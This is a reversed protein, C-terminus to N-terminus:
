YKTSIRRPVCGETGKDHFSGGKVPLFEWDYSSRHLTLKLVGWTSGNWVESANNRLGIDYLRAGGTGVVFSRIGHYFDVKGNADLPAFREYDHDHGTIVISADFKYLTDWAATMDLYDSHPGSSFRPPHWFALICQAKNRSLDKKLWKIQPSDPGADISSNLAIIHWSGVQKSYYGKDRDGAAKGFYDFYGKADRTLYEHNGPAPLTRSKFKGWTPDYCKEFEEPKGKGYALDGAALVVSNPITEILQATLAAGESKCQAIDGAALVTVTKTSSTAHAVNILVMLGLFIPISLDFRKPQM